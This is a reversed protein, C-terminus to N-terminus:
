LKSAHALVKKLYGNPDYTLGYKNVNGMGVNYALIAKKVDSKFYDLLYRFYIAGVKINFSDSYKLNLKLDVDTGKWKFMGKKIMWKATKFQIQMVGYSTGDDGTRGMKGAITEQMLIARVTKPYGFKQGEKKAIELLFLQQENLEAYSVLPILLFMLILILKKM